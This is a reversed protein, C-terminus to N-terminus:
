PESWIINLFPECDGAGVSASSACWHGPQAARTNRGIRRPLFQVVLESSPPEDDLGFLRALLEAVALGSVVTTYAIVSPDRDPLGIAYGERLRQAHEDGPLTEAHLAAPDIRGRCQICADGPMQVSVRADIGHLHGQDSTLQVGLDFVPILYRAGVRAVILRGRNDDTCAFIVDCSALARAATEHNVTDNITIVETGFGVRAATRAVVGVKPQGRDDWDSGWIRTLNSGDASVSDNDIVVLSGVGLRICQEATPSGTGSAGVIGVRLDRLVRQGDAGFAAIQRDFVAPDFPEGATLPVIRVRHDVLRLRTIPVTTSDATTINGGAAFNLSPVIDAVPVILDDPGPAPASTIDRALFLTDDTDPFRVARVVLLKDHADPARAEEYIAAAMALTNRPSM